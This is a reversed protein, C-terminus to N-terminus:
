LTRRRKFLNKFPSFFTEPKGSVSYLHKRKSIFTLMTKGVEFAAYDKTNYYSIISDTHTYFLCCSLRPAFRELTNGVWLKEPDAGSSDEPDKLKSLVISLADLGPNGSFASVMSHHHYVDLAIHILPESISM